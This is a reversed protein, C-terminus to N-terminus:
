TKQPEALQLSEPPLPEGEGETQSPLCTSRLRARAVLAQQTDKGGGNSILGAPEHCRSGPPTGPPHQASPEGSPTLLLPQYQGPSDRNQGGAPSGQGRRHGGLGLAPAATMSTQATPGPQETVLALRASCLVGPVRAQCALPRMQCPPAPAEQTSLRCPHLPAQGWHGRKQRWAGLQLPQATLPRWLGWERAGPRSRGARGVVPLGACSASVGLGRWLGGGQGATITGTELLRHTGPQGQPWSLGPLPCPDPQRDLLRQKGPAM